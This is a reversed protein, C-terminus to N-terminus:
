RPLGPDALGAQQVVEWGLPVQQEADEFADAQMQPLSVLAEVPFGPAEAVREQPERAKVFRVRGEDAKEHDQCRLAHVRVVRGM